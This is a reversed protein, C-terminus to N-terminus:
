IDKKAKKENHKKYIEYGTVGLAAILLLWWWSISVSDDVEDIIGLPVAEDAITTVNANSTDNQNNDLNSDAADEVVGLPVEEDELTVTDAYNISPTQAAVTTTITTTDDAAPTGLPVEDDTITVTSVDADAPNSTSPSSNTTNKKSIEDLKKDLEDKADVILDVLKTYADEAKKLDANALDLQTSLATIVSSDISTQKLSEVKSKLAEVKDKAAAIDIKAQSAKEKLSVYDQKNLANNYDEDASAAESKATDYDSTAQDSAKKADDSVTKKNNSNKVAEELSKLANEMKTKAAEKNELTKTANDLFSNFEADKKENLLIIGNKYNDNGYYAPNTKGIVKDIYNLQSVDMTTQSIVVNKKTDTVKKDFQGTYSYTTKGRDVVTTDVDKATSKENKLASEMAVGTVDGVSNTRDNATIKGTWFNHEAYNDNVADVVIQKIKNLEAIDSNINANAAKLANAKADAKAAEVTNGTGSVNNVSHGQVYTVGVSSFKLNWADVDYIECGEGKSDCLADNYKQKESDSMGFWGSVDKWFSEKLNTYATKVISINLVGSNFKFNDDKEIGFLGKTDKTSTTANSLSIDTVKYNDNDNISDKINSILLNKAEAFTGAKQVFNKVNVQLTYSINYVLDATAKAASTVSDITLNVLKDGESLNSLADKRAAEESSFNDGDIDTRNYTTTTVDATNTIVYKDDVIEESSSENAFEVNNEKKVKVDTVASNKNVLYAKTGTTDFVIDGSNIKANYEEESLEVAINNNKDYVVYKAPIDDEKTAEHYTKEFIVLTRPNNEPKYNYYKTVENGNADITTVVYYNYEDKSFKVFKKSYKVVTGDEYTVIYEDTNETESVISSGSAPKVVNPVYYDKMIMVFLTDLNDYNYKKDADCKEQQKIIELAAKNIIIDEYTTKAEDYLIQAEDAADKASEYEKKADEYAALKEDAISKLSAATSDKELKISKADEVAKEYAAKAADIESDLANAKELVSTLNNYAETVAAEAEKIANEYETNANTANTLATNYDAVAKDYDEKAKDLASAANVATDQINKYAANAGEVTDANKIDEISSNVADKATEIESNAEDAIDSALYANDTAKKTEDAVTKDADVANNLENSTNDIANNTDNIKNDNEDKSYAEEDLADAADKVEDSVGESDNVADIVDTESEDAKSSDSKTDAVDNVVDQLNQNTSVAEEEVIEVEGDGTSELDLEAAFAPTQMSTTVVAAAVGVSTLKVTKVLRHNVNKKM